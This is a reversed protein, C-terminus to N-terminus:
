VTFTKSVLEVFVNNLDDRERRVETKTGLELLSHNEDGENKVKTKTLVELDEMEMDIFPKKEGHVSIINMCSSYDYNYIIPLSTESRTEKFDLILPKM